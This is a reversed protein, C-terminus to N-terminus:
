VLLQELTNLDDPSFIHNFETLVEIYVELSESLQTCLGIGKETDLVLRM